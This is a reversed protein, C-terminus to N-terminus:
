TKAENLFKNRVAVAEEITSFVGLRKSKNDYYAISAWGTTTKVIGTYGTTNLKECNCKSYKYINGVIRDFQKGHKCELKVYKDTGVYPSLLKWQKQELLINLKNEAFTKDLTNQKYKESFEEFQEKTNDGNGYYIHFQKHIYVNLTIGNFIDYRLDPHKNWSNLHHANLKGTQGTLQCKYGDREFVKKVWEEYLVNKVTGRKNLKDQLPISEDWNPHEKGKRFHSCGCTTSTGRNLNATTPYCIKGCECECEWVSSGKKNKEIYKKVILKGFTKGILNVFVRQSALEKNLCGCSQTHKNILNYITCIKINGCDCLCEFWTVSRPCDKKELVKKVILRTFKKNIFDQPIYKQKM